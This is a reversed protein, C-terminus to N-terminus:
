LEVEWLHGTARYADDLLSANIVTSKGRRWIGADCHIHGCVVLKPQIRDIADTFAPCGVHQSDRDVFDGMGYPPGHSVIVDCEPIAAYKEALDEADLNFAWAFFRLQWPLGYIRLGEWEILGDILNTWPLSPVRGPAQEAILDHNGWVGVIKRAPVKELWSAFVTSLWHRQFKLSHNWVPCVDGAVILLDCPEIEPLLGHLDSTCTVKM